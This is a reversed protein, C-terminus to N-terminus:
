GVSIGQEALTDVCLSVCEECIAVERGTVLSTVEDKTKGCFACAAPQVEADAGGGPALTPPAPLRELADALTLFRQALFEIDVVGGAELATTLAERIPAAADNPRRDSMAYVADAIRARIRDRIIEPEDKM